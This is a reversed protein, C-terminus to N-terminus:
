TPTALDDVVREILAVDPDDAPVANVYAVLDEYAGERDEAELRAVGRGYLASADSPDVELVERAPELLM